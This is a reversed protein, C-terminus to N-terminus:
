LLCAASPTSKVHLVLPCPTRNHWNVELRQGKVLLDCSSVIGRGRVTNQEAAPHWPKKLPRESFTRWTKVINPQVSWIFSLVWTGGPRRVRHFWVFLIWQFVPSYQILIPFQCVPCILPVLILCKLLLQLGDDMIWIFHNFDFSCM